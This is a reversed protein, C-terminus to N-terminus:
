MHNDNTVKLLLAFEDGGFRAVISHKPVTSTLKQALKILVTDGLAHGYTDNIAKFYDIDLFVIVFKDDPNHIIQENTANLFTERNSLGTLSDTLARQDVKKNKFINTKFLVYILGISLLIVLFNIIFSTQLSQEKERYNQEGLAKSTDKFYNISEQISKLTKTKESIFVKAFFNNAQQRNDALLALFKEEQDYLRSIATVQQILTEPDLSSNSDIFQDIYNETQNRKEELKEKLDTLQQKNNANNIQALITSRQNVLQYISNHTNFHNEQNILALHIENNIKSSAFYGYISLGSMILIFVFLISTLSFSLKKNM